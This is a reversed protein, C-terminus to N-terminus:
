GGDVIVGPGDPPPDPDTKRKKLGYSFAEYTGAAPSAAVKYWKSPAGAPVHILKKSGTFPWAAQFSVYWDNDDLNGWTVYHTHHSVIKLPTPDGESIRILTFGHKKFGKHVRRAM